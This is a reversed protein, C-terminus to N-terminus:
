LGKSFSLVEQPLRAPKWHQQKLSGSPLGLWQGLNQLCLRPLRLGSTSRIHGMAAATALADRMRPPPSRSRERPAVTRTPRPGHNTGLLHM